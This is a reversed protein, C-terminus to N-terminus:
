ALSAPNLWVSNSFLSLLRQPQANKGAGNVRRQSPFVLRADPNMPGVRGAWEGRSRFRMKGITLGPFDPCAKHKRGQAPKESRQPLDEACGVAGASAMAGIVNLITNKVSIARSLTREQSCRPARWREPNWAPAIPKCSACLDLGERRDRQFKTFGLAIDPDGKLLGILSSLFTPESLDDAEAIWLFEGEAM